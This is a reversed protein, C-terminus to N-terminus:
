ILFFLGSWRIVGPSTLQFPGGVSNWASVNLGLTNAGATIVAGQNLVAGSARLSTFAEPFISFDPIVTYLPTTVSILSKVNGTRGFFAASARPTFGSGNNAFIDFELVGLYTPNKKSPSVPGNYTFLTVNRTNTGNKGSYVGGGFTIGTDDVINTNFRVEGSLRMVGPMLAHPKGWLIPTPLGGPTDAVSDGISGNGDVVVSSDGTVFEYLCENFDVLSIGM